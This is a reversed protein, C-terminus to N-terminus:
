IVAGSSNGGFDFFYVAFDNNVEVVIIRILHQFFTQVSVFGDNQSFKGEGNFVASLFIVSNAAKSQICFVGSNGSGTIVFTSGDAKSGVFNGDIYYLDINGAGIVIGDGNAACNINVFADVVQQGIFVQGFAVNHGLNSILYATCFVNQGQGRGIRLGVGYGVFQQGSGRNVNDNFDNFSEGIYPDKGFSVGGIAVTHYVGQERCNGAVASQDQNVQGIGVRQYHLISGGPVLDDLQGYVAFVTCAM